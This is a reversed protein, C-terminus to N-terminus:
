HIVLLVSGTRLRAARSEEGVAQEPTDVVTIKRIRFIQIGSLFSPVIERLCGKLFVSGYAIHLGDALLGNRTLHYVAIGGAVEACSREEESRALIDPHKLLFGVFVAGVPRLQGVVHRSGDQFVHRLTLQLLIHEHLYAGVPVAAILFHGIHLSEASEHCSDSGPEGKGVVVGLLSLHAPLEM